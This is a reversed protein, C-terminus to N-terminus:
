LPKPRHLETHLAIVQQALMDSLAPIGPLQTTAVLLPLTAPLANSARQAAKAPHPTAARAM